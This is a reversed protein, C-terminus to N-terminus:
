CVLKLSFHVNSFFFGEDLEMINVFPFKDKLHSELRSGTYFSFQTLPAEVSKNKKFLKGCKM